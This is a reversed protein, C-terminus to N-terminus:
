MMGTTTDNDTTSYSHLLEHDSVLIFHLIEAFDLISV